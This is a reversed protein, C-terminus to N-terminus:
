NDVPTPSKPIPPPNDPIQPLTPNQPKTQEPRAPKKPADPVPVPADPAPVTSDPMPMAPKKSKETTDKKVPPKQQANASSAAFTFIATAILSLLLKKM